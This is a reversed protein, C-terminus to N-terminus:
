STLSAMSLPLALTPITKGGSKATLSLLDSGAPTCTSTSALSLMTELEAMAVALEMPRSFDWFNMAWFALIM